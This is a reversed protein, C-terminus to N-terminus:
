SKLNRLLFDNEGTGKKLAEILATKDTENLISENVKKEVIGNVDNWSFDSEQGDVDESVATLLAAITKAENVTETQVKIFDKPNYDASVNLLANLDAMVVKQYAQTQLGELKLAESYKNFEDASYAGESDKFAQVATSIAEAATAEATYSANLTNVAEVAAEITNTGEVSAKLEANIATKQTKDLNKNSNIVKTAATTVLSTEHIISASSNPNVVVLAATVAAQEAQDLDSNSNAVYHDEM